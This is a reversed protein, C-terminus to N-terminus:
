FHDPTQVGENGPYGSAGGIGTAVNDGIVQASGMELAEAQTPNVEGPMVPSGAEFEPIILEAFGARTGCSVLPIDNAIKYLSVALRRMSGSLDVLADHTGQVTFPAESARTVWRMPRRGESCASERAWNKADIARIGPNTLYQAANRRRATGLQLRPGLVDSDGCKESAKAQRRDFGVDTDITMRTIPRQNEFLKM